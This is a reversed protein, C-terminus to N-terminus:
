GAGYGDPRFNNAFEAQTFADVVKGITREAAKRLLAELKSFKM